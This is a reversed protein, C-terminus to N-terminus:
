RRFIRRQPAQPSRLHEEDTAYTLSWVMLFQVNKSGRNTKSRWAFKKFITLSRANFTLEIRYKQCNVRQLEDSRVDFSDPRELLSFYSDDRSETYASRACM